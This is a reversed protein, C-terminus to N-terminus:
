HCWDIICRLRQSCYALWAWGFILQWFVRMQIIYMWCLIVVACCGFMLSVYLVSLLIRIYLPWWFFRNHSPTECGSSSVAKPAYIEVELNSTNGISAIYICYIVLIINGYYCKEKKILCGNYYKSTSPTVETKKHIHYIQKERCSRNLNSFDEM